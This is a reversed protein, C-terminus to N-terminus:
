KGEGFLGCERLFAAVARKRLAAGFPWRRDKKFWRGISRLKEGGVVVYHETKGRVGRVRLTLLGEQVEDDFRNQRM